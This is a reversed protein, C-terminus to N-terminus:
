PTGGYFNGYQYGWGIRTAVRNQFQHSAVGARVSELEFTVTENLLKDPCVWEMGSLTLITGDNAAATSDAITTGTGEDILWLGVLDTESGTLDTNKEAEIEASTRATDWIRLEKIIQDVALTEGSSTDNGDHFRTGTSGNGVQNRGIIPGGIDGALNAITVGSVEDELSGNLYVRLRNNAGDYVLSILYKEGQILTVGTTFQSFATPANDSWVGARLVGSDFYLNLGDNEDGQKYIVQRTTFVGNADLRIEVTKTNFALANLADSSPIDVRVAGFWRLGVEDKSNPAPLAPTEAIEEICPWAFATGPIGVETRRVTGGQDRARVTYTVGAEPGIDADGQNVLALQTLRDRHAWTLNLEADQEVGLPFFEGEIETNGPPYPRNARNTFVQTLTAAGGEALSGEFTEPLYKVNVTSLDPFENESSAMGYFVFWIRAGATHAKPTTDMFGRHVRNIQFTGDGNDVIDEFSIIEGVQGDIDGIFALNFSYALINGLSQDEVKIGILADETVQLSNSLDLSGKATTIDYDVTLAGTPTFFRSAGTALFPDPSIRTLINYSFSGGSPPSAVTAIASAEDDSWGTVVRESRIIHFPMEFVDEFPAPAPPSTPVVWDTPQPAAYIAEGLTFIDEIAGIEIIGQELQGYNIDSIRMVLDVIGLPEWTLKFVGGPEFTYAERNVKINCKALPFTLTKLDRQAVETAIAENIIGPYQMTVSIIGENQINFNALDQAQAAKPKFQSQDTFVVKVENTTEDWAGRSFGDLSLINSKNLIPLNGIVFDKRILKLVFLGTVIDNFVVGDIHRLIIAIMDEITNRNDWILGMGFNEAALVDAVARFKNQDLFSVPIGGGWTTDTMLEFIIEAPNANGDVIPTTSGLAIPNRTIVFNWQDIFENTGLNVQRFVVNCWSRFSPVPATLKTLLYSDVTDTLNGAYARVPGVIGGGQKDGGFFDPAGINTVGGLSMSSLLQRDSVYVPGMADIPGHCVGLHMGVFYNYGIIVDYKKTKILGKVEVVEIIPVVLLDGYWLTNPSNVRAKGWVVPLPRGEEATPFQFDGLGKPKANQFVPDPRMLEGIILSAFFLAIPIWIPM